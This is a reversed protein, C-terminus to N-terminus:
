SPRGALFARVAARAGSSVHVGHTFGAVEYDLEGLVAASSRSLRVDTCFAKLSYRLGRVNFLADGTVLVGSAPHLFACHGPTHGPAHVVQIGGALPLVAADAFLQDVPVKAFRTASGPLRSMLRGGLTSRDLAPPRGERLYVADRDHAWVTAGTADVVAAAGGAHDGHAHTFLLHTIDGPARGLGALAALLRRQAGKLGADVLTLTGDDGALLFSNVLDFPATPLRWVGDAVQVAAM